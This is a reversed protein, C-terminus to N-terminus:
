DSGGQDEQVPHGSGSVDGENNGGRSITSSNAYNLKISRVTFLMHLEDGSIARKKKLSSMTNYFNQIKMGLENAVGERARKSIVGDPCKDLLRALIEIEKSTLGGHKVSHFLGSVAQVYEKPKKLNLKLM